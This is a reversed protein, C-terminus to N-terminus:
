SHKELQRKFQELANDFLNDYSTTRALATGFGTNVANGQVLRAGNKSLTISCSISWGGGMSLEVKYAAQSPAVVTFGAAQLASKVKPVYDSARDSDFPLFAVTKPQTIRAEPATGTSNSICASFLAGALFLLAFRLTSHM